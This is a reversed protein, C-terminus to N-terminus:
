GLSAAIPRDVSSRTGSFCSLFGTSPISFAGTSTCTLRRRAGGCEQREEVAALTQGSGRGRAARKCVALDAASEAIAVCDDIWM